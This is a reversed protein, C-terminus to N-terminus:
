KGLSRLTLKLHLLFHFFSFGPMCSALVTGDCIGGFVYVKEDLEVCAHMMRPIMLPGAMSWKQTKTNYLECSDSSKDRAPWPCTQWGGIVMLFSNTEKKEKKAISLEVISHNQRWSSLPSVVSWRGKSIDFCEMLSVEGVSKEFPSQRGTFYNTDYIQIAQARYELQSGFSTMNFNIIPGNTLTAARLTPTLLHFNSREKKDLFRIIHSSGAYDLVIGIIDLPWRSVSNCTLVDVVSRFM